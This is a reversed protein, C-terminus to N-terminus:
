SLEEEDESSENAPDFSWLATVDGQVLALGFVAVFMAPVLFLLAPLGTSQVAPAFECATCGIGFGVISAAFYNTNRTEEQDFRLLFTSLLTPFVSDGLGLLDTVIGRLRVQFLGPQWMGETKSLAVAKMVSSSSSAAASTTAVVDGQPPPTSTALTASGLDILQLGV